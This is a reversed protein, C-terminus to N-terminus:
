LRSIFQGLFIITGIATIIATIISKIGFDKYKYIAYIMLALSFLFGIFMKITAVVSSGKM